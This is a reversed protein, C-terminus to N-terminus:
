FCCKIYPSFPLPPSFSLRVWINTNAYLADHVIPYGMYQLHVRIQHAPLLSKDTGDHTEFTKTQTIYESRGTIPRGIRESADALLIFILSLSPITSSKCLVVSTDSEADYRLLKFETKSPQLSYDTHSRIWAAWISSVFLFHFSCRVKGTPHVIVM